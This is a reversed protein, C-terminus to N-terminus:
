GVAGPAANIVLQVDVADVTGSCNVDRSMCDVCCKGTVGDIPLPAGAPDYCIVDQLELDSCEGDRAGEAARLTVVVIEGDDLVSNSSDM